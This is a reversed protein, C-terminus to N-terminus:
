FRVRLSARLTRPLTPHSHLDEVGESPEGPLRSRYFYDIDSARANFLNFADLVLDTRSTVRYGAQANVLRTPSSRVSGDEVLNRGGFYRLRLSGFARQGDDLTVGASMVREVAGPIRNGAPDDDSFRAASWALDADLTLWSRPALYTNWEVGWRRSPRSAETTGADGIFLLESDLDLRWLAVDTEIGRMPVFRAGLEAGKARALPTVRDVPDGSGPDMTITTGRADNSHYGYGANAYLEASKWPGFVLSLKPSALSAASRGSNEPQLATVEFWFRDLRLGASSRLWPTWQLEHQAYGALSTQGVEDDRTASLPTRAVTHLLAVRGIADHRVDAGIVLESARGGIRGAIRHAIRGGSVVRRDSQQFQDGNEPDDLFYTFNSFLDLTYRMVYASARTVSASRTQQWESSLSFRFTDGGVTDDIGDFRSILGADVGRLPAQDTANWSGDYGMATVSLGNRQDGATYRLVGNLKEYNDGKVWPGDNHNAEVAVLLHGPGVRPSAAALARGWGDEGGSVRVIPADLVNLYRVHSSGASSFDGEDAFYPGKRFQVGGVLEPILFNLDSYGHGHAHTPMNVPVGAVTTAFDTGHDLNFGRLYYQNAKGEGSHQSIVVGPVTELIEGSRMIPRAQIQRGTVLGESAADAIGILGGEPADLDAINRFTRQGTVLVDASMTLYLTANVETSEGAALVVNPERAAAFNPLRFEVAYRGPDLGDIRYAGQEDASTTTAIAGAADRIEVLAGPLAGRTEDVVRGFLVAQQAAAAPWVIATVVFYFAVLGFWRMRRIKAEACRSTFLRATTTM